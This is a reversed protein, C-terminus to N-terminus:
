LCFFHYSVLDKRLYCDEWVFYWQERMTKSLRNHIICFLNFNLWLRFSKILLELQQSDFNIVQLYHCYFSCNWSGWYLSGRYVFDETFCHNEKGWYLLLLLIYPFSGQYYRFRMITFLDRPGKNYLPEM